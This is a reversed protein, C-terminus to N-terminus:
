QISHGHSVCSSSRQRDYVSSAVFHIAASWFHIFNVHMQIQTRNTQASAHPSYSRALTHTHTQRILFSFSLHHPLHWVVRVIIIIIIIFIPLLFFIKINVQTFLLSCQFRGHIRQRRTPIQDYM